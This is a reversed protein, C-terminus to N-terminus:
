TLLLWTPKLQQLLETTGGKEGSQGLEGAGWGRWPTHKPASSCHKMGSPGPVRMQRGANLNMLMHM